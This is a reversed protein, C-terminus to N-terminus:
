HALAFHFRLARDQPARRLAAEKLKMFQYRCLGFFRCMWIYFLMLVIAKVM